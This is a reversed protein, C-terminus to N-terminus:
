ADFAAEAMKHCGSEPKSALNGCGNPSHGLRLKDKHQEPGNVMYLEWGDAESPTTGGTYAGGTGGGGARNEAAVSGGCGM